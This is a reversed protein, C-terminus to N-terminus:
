QKQELAELIKDAIVVAELPENVCYGGAILGQAVSVAMMERKTMESAPRRGNVTASQKTENTDM